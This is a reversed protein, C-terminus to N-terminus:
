KWEEWQKKPICLISYAPVKAGIITTSGPPTLRETNEKVWECREKSISEGVQKMEGNLIMVLVYDIM